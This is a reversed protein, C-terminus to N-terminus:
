FKHEYQLRWQRMTDDVTRGVQTGSTDVYRTARANDPALANSVSFRLQRQPTFSYAAYAQLDRRQSVFSSEADSLRSWGGATLALSAGASFAQRKYDLGMNASWRPQGALRIGPVLVGHVRSWNRSGTLRVDVAPAGPSLATLPFKAELEVTQVTADGSNEPYSLWRAGDFRVASRILGDIQRASASASIMAGNKWYREYALDVGIALEPRLFPNGTFDPSVASNFSSYFHRPILSRLPPSKYTRTLAFRMQDKGQGPLKWLVQMLPSLVRSHSQAVAGPGDTQINVGEWRMGLYLLLDSSVEWEDQVYLAVRNITAHFQNEFDIPASGGAIPVDDQIELERYKGRGIDWGFALGHQDKWSFTFKGTLTGGQDRVDTSYTRDLVYRNVDNRGLRVMDRETRTAYGRAKSSLRGTEGIRGVWEVDTNVDLLDRQFGVDLEPFPHRNGSITTSREENDGRLRAASAFAQWAVTDTGTLKWQLRSNLNLVTNTSDNRYDTTRLATQQGAPNAHEVQERSLDTSSGHNLSLGATHSLRDIKGSNNATFHHLRGRQSRSAGPKIERSSKSVNRRLIINVTGAIAQTSHEAMAARAVEVREILDPSLTEISFGAPAREGNVLIQTYGNGLGRMRIEAGNVTVGPLRRMADLISTDGFKLIDDRTMVIRSSTDNRRAADTNATVSVTAAPTDPAGPAQQAHAMCTALAGITLMTVCQPQNM